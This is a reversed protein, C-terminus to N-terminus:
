HTDERRAKKMKQYFDALIPRPFLSEVERSLDLQLSRRGNSPSIAKRKTCLVPRPKRPAAPCQKIVPIKHDMTTPTKFGDNDDDDTAKLEGLSLQRSSSDGTTKCEEEEEEQSHWQLAIIGNADSSESVVTFDLSPRLLIKFEIDEQNEKVLHLESNSSMATLFTFKDLDSCM